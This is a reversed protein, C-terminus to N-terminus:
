MGSKIYKWKINEKFEIILPLAMVVAYLLFVTVEFFDTESYKIAPFYTIRMHGSIYGCVIYLDLALIAVCMIVDRLMFKYISFATRGPLGYGRSKMSDATEVSNELAWTTTISLVKSLRKIKCAFKESTEDQGISKQADSVKKFQRAFMPVFRLTMSLVLSMSPIFKGFLYIFKDGTMVANFCSFWCIVGLIMISAAIGYIVSELTLPNGGPFYALVTVGEHNFLTNIIATTLILPISYLVGAKITKKGKLLFLYAFGCFVSVLLSIPHMFVCSFIIVSVFYFLNTIPHYNKFGIM